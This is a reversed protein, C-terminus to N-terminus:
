RARGGMSANGPSIYVVTITPASMPDAFLYRRSGEIRATGIVGDAPLVGRAPNEALTGTGEIYEAAVVARAKGANAISCLLVTPMMDLLEGNVGTQAALKAADATLADATLASGPDAINNRDAHFLAQATSGDPLSVSPGAGSNEQLAAYADIEVARATAM